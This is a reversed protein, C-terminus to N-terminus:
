CVAQMWPLWERRGAATLLLSRSRPGHALWGRQLHQQLLARGLWGGLHSRRESWDLCVPLPAAGAPVAVGNNALWAMGADTPLLRDSRTVLLGRALLTQLQLVGLEGALHGYCSRARKLPQLTARQWRRCVADPAPAPPTPVPAPSSTAHWYVRAGQRQM